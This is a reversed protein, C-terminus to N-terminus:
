KKSFFSGIAEGILMGSSLSLGLYSPYLAGLMSGFCMGLCM